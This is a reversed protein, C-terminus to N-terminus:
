PYRAQGPPNPTVPAIDPIIATKSYPLAFARCFRAFGGKAVSRDAFVMSSYRSQLPLPNAPEPLAVM